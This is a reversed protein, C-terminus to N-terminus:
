LMYFNEVEEQVKKESGAIEEYAKEVLIRIIASRSIGYKEKLKAIKLLTDPTFSTSAIMGGESAAKHYVEATLGPRIIERHLELVKQKLKNM